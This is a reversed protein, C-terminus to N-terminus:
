ANFIEEIDKLLKKIELIYDLTIGSFERMKEFAFTISKRDEAKNMDYKFFYEDLMESTITHAKNACAKINFLEADIEPLAIRKNDPM